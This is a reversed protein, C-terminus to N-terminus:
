YGKEAVEWEYTNRFSQTVEKNKVLYAETRNKSGLMSAFGKSFIAKLRTTVCHGSGRWTETYVTILLLHPQCRKSKM